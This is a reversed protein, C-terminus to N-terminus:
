PLSPHSFSLQSSLSLLFPSSAGYSGSPVSAGAPLVFYNTLHMEIMQRERSFRDLFQIICPVKASKAEIDWQFATSLLEGWKLWACSAGLLFLLPM